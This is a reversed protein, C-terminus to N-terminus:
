PKEPLIGPPVKMRIEQGLRDGLNEAEALPAKGEAEWVEEGDPHFVAGKLFVQGGEVYAYAGIPTQCSGDLRRLMGREAQMATFSEAHNISQLLQALPRNAKLIEFGVIGQTGCPLMKNLEIFSRAEGERGLRKLGAYALFTGDVQGNAIKRLRTDVNGRFPEAKLHPWHHLLQARRRPSSTGIVAGEPLEEPTKAKLSVFVDRADERPLVAPILFVDDIFAPVDKMSHVAVDIRDELLATELEKTFLGKGGQHYLLEDKGSKPDHDGSAKILVIETAIDPFQKKLAATFMHTQTQALPSQRTGIRLKQSQFLSSEKM